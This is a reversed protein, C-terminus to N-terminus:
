NFEDWDAYMIFIDNTQYNM